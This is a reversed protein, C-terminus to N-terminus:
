TRKRTWNEDSKQHPNKTHIIHPCPAVFKCHVNQFNNTSQM